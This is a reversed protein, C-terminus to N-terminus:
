RRSSRDVRNWGFESLAEDSMLSSGTEGGRDDVGAAAAEVQFKYLVLGSKFRLPFVKLTFKCEQQLELM